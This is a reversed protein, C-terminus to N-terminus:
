RKARKSETINIIGCGDVLYNGEEEIVKMTITFEPMDKGKVIIYNSNEDFSALEFGESPYDQADFIPDADLGLEPDAKYAEDVIRKLEAKFSKSSMTNANVWEVIGTAKNMKNANDVYANIFTLANKAKDEKTIPITESTKPKDTLVEVKSAQKCSTLMLGLLIIILLQKFM